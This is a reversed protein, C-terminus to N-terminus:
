VKWISVINVCLIVVLHIFIVKANLAAIVEEKEKLHENLTNNFGEMESLKMKLEDNGKSLSAVLQEQEGLKEQLWYYHSKNEHQKYQKFIIHNGKCNLRDYAWYNVTSVKYVASDEQELMKNENLIKVQEM